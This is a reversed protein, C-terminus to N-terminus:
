WLGDRRDLNFEGSLSGRLAAKQRRFTWEPNAYRRAVLDQALSWEEMTLESNEFHMGVSEAFGTVVAKAVEEYSPRRGLLSEIATARHTLAQGRPFVATWQAYDIAILLSGHQLLARSLRRQASGVLKQGNVALEYRSTALFCLGRCGETDREGRSMTASLGLRRLGLLLCHSIWRYDHLVGRSGGSIPLVLSYTLEHHHLLARGGTPRRVLSVGLQGCATLDVEGDIPQYCGFSVTPPHWRYLRLTPRGGSAQCSLLLAEDIAMNTPGDRPTELLLRWPRQRDRHDFTEKVESM